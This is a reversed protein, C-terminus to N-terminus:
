MVHGHFARAIRSILIHRRRLLNFAQMLDWPLRYLGGIPGEIENVAREVVKETPVEHLRLGLSLSVSGENM